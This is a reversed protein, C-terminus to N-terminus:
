LNFNYYICNDPDHRASVVLKKEAVADRELFPVKNSTRSLTMQVTRFIWLSCYYEKM